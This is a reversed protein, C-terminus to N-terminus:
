PTAAAQLGQVATAACGLRAGLMEALSASIKPKRGRRAKGITANLGNLSKSAAKLMRGQRKASGGAAQAAELKGRIANTKARLVKALSPALDGAGAGGVAGDVAILQRGVGAFGRADTFVCGVAPDCTDDTCV